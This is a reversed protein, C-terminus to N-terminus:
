RRKLLFIALGAILISTVAIVLARLLIWNTRRKLLTATANLPILTAECPGVTANKWVLVLRKSSGDIVRAYSGDGYPVWKPLIFVRVTQRSPKPFVTIRPFVTPSGVRCPYFVRVSLNFTGDSPTLDLDTKGEGVELRLNSPPYVEPGRDISTNGFPIVVHISQNGCQVVSLLIRLATRNQFFLTETVQVASTVMSSLIILIMVSPVMRAILGM